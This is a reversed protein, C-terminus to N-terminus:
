TRKCLRKFNMITAPTNLMNNISISRTNFRMKYSRPGKFLTGKCFISSQHCLRVTPSFFSRFPLRPVPGFPREGLSGMAFALIGTGFRGPGKPPVPRIPGLAPGFQFGWLPLGIPILDPQVAVDGIRADTGAPLGIGIDGRSVDAHVPLHDRFHPIPDLSRVLDTKIALAETQFFLFVHKQVLGLVEDGGGAIFLAPTGN